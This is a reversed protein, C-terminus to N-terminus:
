QDVAKNLEVKARIVSRLVTALENKLYAIEALADRYKQELNQPAKASSKTLSEVSVNLAKAYIALANHKPIRSGNEHSLYSSQTLKFKQCFDTATQYGAKVRLSKLRKAITNKSSM